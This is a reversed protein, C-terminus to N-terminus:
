LAHYAKHVPDQAGMRGQIACGEGSAVPENGVWLSTRVHLAHRGSCM